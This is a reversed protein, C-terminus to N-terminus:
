LSRLIDGAGREILMQALKEGAADPTDPSDDIKDRYITSGDTTAVLGELSLSDGDIDAAAAIPFQCGGGLTRLFAREAMACIWTPRHNIRELLAALRHNNENIEVGLAGQGVAPLMQSRPIKSSIYSEMGLREVGARALIIADWDSDLFKQIRTPVNGRLEETHLDPRLGLLQAKRRISGSAVTGGRPIDDISMGKKRAVLVDDRAHRQTISALKLGEPIETQLDKLSHVAIDISGALLENELEKTFLGKGGIKSLAVDLIKDGKTKIHKLSIELGPFAESLENKIFESQWLALKSSRTGIIIKNENIM